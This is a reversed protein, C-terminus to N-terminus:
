LPSVIEPNRVLKRLIRSGCIYGSTESSIWRGCMSPFDRENTSPKSHNCIGKALLLPTLALFTTDCHLETATRLDCHYRIAIEYATEIRMGDSQGIVRRLSPNVLSRNLLAKCTRRVKEPRENKSTRKPQGHTGRVLLGFAIARMAASCASERCEARKQGELRKQLM